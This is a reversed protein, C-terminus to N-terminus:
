GKPTFPAFTQVVIKGNEGRVHEHGAPRVGRAGFSSPSRGIPVRLESTFTGVLGAFWDRIAASGRVPGEQAFLVADDAFDTMVGDIDKGGIAQMHRGFAAETQKTAEASM